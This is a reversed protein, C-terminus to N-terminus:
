VWWLGDNCAPRLVNSQHCEYARFIQKIVADHFDAVLHRAVSIKSANIRKFMCNSNKVKSRVAVETVLHQYNETEYQVNNCNKASHLHSARYNGILRVRQKRSNSTTRKTGTERILLHFSHLLFLQHPEWFAATQCM